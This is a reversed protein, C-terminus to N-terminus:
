NSNYFFPAGQLPLQVDYGGSQREKYLSPFVPAGILPGLKGSALEETIAYGYSFESFDPEM